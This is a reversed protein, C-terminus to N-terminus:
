FVLTPRVLSLKLIVNSIKLKVKSVVTLKRNLLKKLKKWFFKPTNEDIIHLITLHAKHLNALKIARAIARDGRSSLDTAVLIKKMTKNTQNYHVM